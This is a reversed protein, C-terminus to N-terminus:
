ANRKTINNIFLIITGAIILLGPLILGVNISYDRASPNSLIRQFFTLTGSSLGLIITINTIIKSDKASAIISLVITIIFLLFVILLGVSLEFVDKGFTLELFSYSLTSNEVKLYVSPLIFSIFALVYLLYHLYKTLKKM